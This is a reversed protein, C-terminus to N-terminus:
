QISYNSSFLQFKSFISSNKKKTQTQTFHLSVCRTLQSRSSVSSWSAHTTQVAARPLATGPRRSMAPLPPPRSLELDLTVSPRSPITYKTTHAIHIHALIHLGLSISAPLKIQELPLLSALKQFSTHANISINVYLHHPNKSV